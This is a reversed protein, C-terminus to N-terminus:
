RVWRVTHWTSYGARYNVGRVTDVYAPMYLRITQSSPKTYSASVKPFAGASNLKIWRTTVWSTGVRRQVAVMQNRSFTTPYVTGWYYVTKGLGLTSSSVHLVPDFTGKMLARSYSLEYWGSDTAELWTRVRLYYTGTTPATYSLHNTTGTQAYTNALLHLGSDFLELDFDTGPASNLTTSLTQGAFAYVNFCDFFDTQADLMGYVPPAPLLLRTGPVNSDTDAGYSLAYTGDGSYRNVRISYTGASNSPVTYAIVEPYSTSTSSALPSGGSPGYLYLDFDTGDDGTLYFYATQRAPLYWSFYNDPNVTDLTGTVPMAPLPEGPFIGVDLNPSSDVPGLASPYRAPARDVGAGAGKSLASPLRPTSAGVAPSKAGYAGATSLGVLLLAALVLVLGAGLRSAMRKM